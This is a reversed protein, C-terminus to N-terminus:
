KNFISYTEVKKRSIEGIIAYPIKKTQKYFENIIDETLELTYDDWDFVGHTRDYIDDPTIEGGHPTSLILPLDGEYYRIYNKIIPQIM